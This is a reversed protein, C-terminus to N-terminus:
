AETAAPDSLSALSGNLRTSEVSIIRQPTAGSVSLRRRLRECRSSNRMRGGTSHICDDLPVILDSDEILPVFKFADLMGRTPHAWRALTEAGVIRGTHLDVIPQYWAAIEGNEIARRVRQEEDLRRELSERLQM